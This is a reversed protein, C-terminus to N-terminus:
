ILNYLESECCQMQMKRLFSKSFNQVLVAKNKICTHPHRCMFVVTLSPSHLYETKDSKRIKNSVAEDFSCETGTPKGPRPKGGAVEQNGM